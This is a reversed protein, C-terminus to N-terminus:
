TAFPTFFILRTANFAIGFRAIGARILRLLSAGNVQRHGLANMSRAYRIVGIGHVADIEACPPHVAKPPFAAEAILWRLVYNDGKAEHGCHDISTVCSGRDGCSCP